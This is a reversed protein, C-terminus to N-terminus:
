YMISGSMFNDTKYLNDRLDTVLKLYRKRYNSSLKVNVDTKFVNKWWHYCNYLQSHTKCSRIVSLIYDYREFLGNKGYVEEMYIERSSKPFLKKLWKNM